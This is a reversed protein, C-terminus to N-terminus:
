KLVANLTFQLPKTATASKKEPLIASMAKSGKFGKEETAEETKPEEKAPEAEAGKFLFKYDGAFAAKVEDVGAVADGDVTIGAEAVQRAIGEAVANVAELGDLANAIADELVKARADDELQKIQLSKKSVEAELEAIKAKLEKEDVDTVGKDDEQRYGKVVGSGKQAPVAVFSWEYVDDVDVIEVCGVQQAKETSNFGISVEQLLGSKIGEILAKNAETDLTYAYGVVCAGAETQEVEAKYIRSHVGEVQWSHNRIGAKGVVFGAISQLATQSFREGDRDIQDDCLRVPYCFLHEPQIDEGKLYGKILEFDEASPATFMGAHATGEFAKNIRM